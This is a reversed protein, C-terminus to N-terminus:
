DIIGMSGVNNVTNNNVNSDTIVDNTEFVILESKIDEYKEKM